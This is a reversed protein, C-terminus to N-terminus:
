YEISVSFYPSFGLNLATFYDKNDSYSITKSSYTETQETNKNLYNIFQWEPSLGFSFAIPGVYKKLSVSCAIGFSLLNCNENNNVYFDQYIFQLYPKLLFSAQNPLNFEFLTGAYCKFGLSSPLSFDGFSYKDGNIKTSEYDLACSVKAGYIFRKATTEVGIDATVIKYFNNKEPRFYMVNMSMPIEINEAFVFSSIIGILFVFLVKKM